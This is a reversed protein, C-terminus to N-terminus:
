KQANFPLAKKYYHNIDYRHAMVDTPTVIGPSDGVRVYVTDEPQLQFNAVETKKGWSSQEVIHKGAKLDIFVFTKYNLGTSKDKEGDISINMVERFPKPPPWYIVVRGEGKQIAPWASATEEFTMNRSRSPDLIMKMCGTTQLLLIVVIFIFFIRSERYPTAKSNKLTAM